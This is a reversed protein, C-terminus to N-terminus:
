DNTQGRGILRAIAGPVDVCERGRLCTVGGRFAIAESPQFDIPGGDFHRVECGAESAILAGPLHDWLLDSRGDDRAARLYADIDGTAVALYKAQSDLELVELGPTSRLRDALPGGHALSVAVRIPGTRSVAGLRSWRPEGGAVVPSIWAGRGAVAFAISRDIALPREPNGGPVAMVAFRPEGEFFCALALAFYRGGLFGKTGDIPDLVWVVRGDSPPEVITTGLEMAYVSRSIDAAEQAHREQLNRPEESLLADEPFDRRLLEQMQTQHLLDVVTVPSSDAKILAEVQGQVRSSGIAQRWFLDLAAAVRPRLEAPLAALIDATRM